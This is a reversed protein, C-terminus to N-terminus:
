VLYEAHRECLGECNRMAMCGSKWHHGYVLRRRHCRAIEKLPIQRAMQTEDCTERERVHLSIRICARAGLILLSTQKTFEPVPHAGFQAREQTILLLVAHACTRQQSRSIHSVQARKPTSLRMQFVPVPAESALDGERMVLLRPNFPEPDKIHMELRMTSAPSQCSIPAHKSSTHSSCGLM